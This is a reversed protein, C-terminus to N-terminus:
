GGKRPGDQYLRDTQDALFGAVIPAAFPPRGREWLRECGLDIQRWGFRILSEISTGYIIAGVGAWWCGAACMPCPEATSVVAVGIAEIELGSLRRLAAIEAHATPDDGSANPVQLLLRGTHLEALVCGFPREAGEASEIAGRM